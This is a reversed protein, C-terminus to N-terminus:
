KIVRRVNPDRYEPNKDLYEKAISFDNKFSYLSLYAEHTTLKNILTYEKDVKDRILKKQNPYRRYEPYSHKDYFLLCLKPSLPYYVKTSKDYINVFKIGDDDVKKISDFSIPHDSTYFFRKKSKIEFLMKNQNLLFKIFKKKITLLKKGVKLWKSTKMEKIWNDNMVILLKQYKKAHTSIKKSDEISSFIQKAKTRMYQTRVYQFFTLYCIKLLEKRNLNLLSRQELIKHYTRSLDSEAISLYNEVPQPQYKDYFFKPASIKKINVPAKVDKEKFYAYTWANTNTQRFSFKRLYFRPVTHQRVKLNKRKQRKM